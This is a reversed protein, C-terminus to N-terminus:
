HEVLFPFSKFLWFIFSAILRYYFCNKHSSLASLIYVESSLRVSYEHIRQLSQCFRKRLVNKKFLPKVIVLTVYPRLVLGRMKFGASVRTKIKRGAEM